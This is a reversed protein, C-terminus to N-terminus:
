ATTSTHRRLTLIMRTGDEYGSDIDVTAGILDAVLRCIHLGLGVGPYSPSLKVFRDFIVEQKDAPIGPGTDTVIFVPHGDPLIGYQITISGKETFKVSNSILNGLIQEVRMPDTDIGADPDCDPLAEIRIAVDSSLNQSHSDVAIVALQKMAVHRTRVIAVNNELEATDMVDNVLTRIMQANTEIIKVFHDLTSRRKDDINDVILQSYGVIAEVPDAIEHSVTTIFDVNEREAQRAEDRAEILETQTKKLNASESKLAANAKALNDAIHKRRRYAVFLLISCVAMLVLVISGGIIARKNSDARMSTNLAELQENNAHLYNIDHLIEHEIIRDADIVINQREIIPTYRKYAELLATNNNTASAATILMRLLNIERSPSNVVSLSYQLLPVARAYDGKAMAYYAQAVGIRKMDDAVMPENAALEKLTSYVSDIETPTLAKYNGLLRQYITYYYVTYERLHRGKKNYREQLKHVFTLYEKDSNVADAHHGAATNARGALNYYLSKLAGPEDPLQDILGKLKKLYDLLLPSNARNHIFICISFLMEIRRYIDAKEDHDFELLTNHLLRLRDEDKMTNTRNQLSVLKIFTLTERQLASAPLLEARHRQLSRLSDNNKGPLNVQALMRLAEMRANDNHAACATQYMQEAYDRSAAVGVQLDYLNYLIPMSDAATHANRLAGRLSDSLEARREVSIYAYAPTSALIATIFLIAPIVKSKLTYSTHRM